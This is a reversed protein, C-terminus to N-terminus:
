KATRTRRHRVKCGEEGAQSQGGRSAIGAPFLDAFAGHRRAQARVQPEIRKRARLSFLLSVTRLKEDAAHAPADRRVLRPIRRLRNSPEQLTGGLTPSQAPAQLASRARDAIPSLFDGAHRKQAKACGT